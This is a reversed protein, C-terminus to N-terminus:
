DEALVIRKDKGIHHASDGLITPLGSLASVVALPDKLWCNALRM